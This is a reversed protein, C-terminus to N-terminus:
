ARLVALFRDVDQADNFVSVSARILNWRTTATVGAARFRPAWPPADDVALTLMPARCGPPTLIRYRAPIGQRLAAVLTQAHAQINEVGLNMIYPLTYELGALTADNPHYELSFLGAAGPKRRYGDVVQPAPPDYPYMHPTPLTTFQTWHAFPAQLRDAIGNRIYLFATGPSMLWKYTACAAADVGWAHLDVPSNGAAQIIDAYVVAGHAHALACVMPLDHQFGNLFSTSSLALLVPGGGRTSAQAVARELADFAIRGDPTMPVWTVHVGRQQMDNYMMLSGIFHLEDTVIRAGARPLGLSACFFSEGAETSPVFAIEEADAGVLRAFSARVADADPPPFQPDGLLAEDAERIRRMAGIPRPHIAAGDLYAGHLGPFSARDPLSAAPASPEGVASLPLLAAAAAAAQLWQRRSWTM